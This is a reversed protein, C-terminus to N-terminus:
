RSPSTVEIPKCHGTKISPEAIDDYAKGMANMVGNDMELYNGTKREIIIYDM